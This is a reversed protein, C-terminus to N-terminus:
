GKSISWTISQRQIVKVPKGNQKAPVWKPGRQLVRLAENAAGYGPDKIVKFNSLNGEEDVAFSITAVYQGPPAGKDSLLVTNLNRQLYAEWAKHGGPFVAPETGSTTYIVTEPNTEIPHGLVVVPELRTTDAAVGGTTTAGDNNKVPHLALVTVEQLNGKNTKDSTQQVPKLSSLSVDQIYIKARAPANGKTYIEIVGNEGKKGYKEIATEDKLVYMAEIDSPNLAGLTSFDVEKGNLVILAKSVSRTTDKRGIVTIEELAPTTDHKPRYSGAPSIEKLSVNQITVPHNAFAAIGALIENAMGTLKEDQTVNKFDAANSMTGCQLLIAPLSNNNLVNIPTIRQKLTKNVTFTGSLSQLIASGLLKSEAFHKNANSVFIGIGHQAMGSSYDLHLSIFAGADQKTAFAVRDAESVANDGNRTLVVDINYNGALQQMKQALRLTVQKETTGNIRLGADNGGHGADIVVKFNTAAIQVSPEALALMQEKRLRFAFLLLVSALLPLIMLRRLYSYKPQTINTLMHLRRKIPSYAFPQAPAFINRGYQSTLLMTAFAAGDNNEIAKEDAIFEHLLYLEKQIFWYFPNLWFVALVLQMCLKDVTHKQRIHTLEHQLIQRGTTENLDIDSRWFLNQLFSFPAQSLDTNIFDFEGMNTASYKKKFAYIRCIRWILLGIFFLGVAIYIIVPLEQWNVGFGGAQGAVAAADGQVYMVDMLAIAKANSSSITFWNINLLPLLISAAVTVLLYFRNYYHFRKNRLALRYYLLLIGSCATVKLLYIALSQM